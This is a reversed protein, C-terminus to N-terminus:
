RAKRIRHNVVTTVAVSLLCCALHLWYFLPIGCLRPRDPRVVIVLAPAAIPVVLLLGWARPGLSKRRREGSLRRAVM